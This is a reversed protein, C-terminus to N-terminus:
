IFRQQFSGPRSQGLLFVHGLSEMPLKSHEQQPEKAPVTQLLKLVEEERLAPLNTLHHLSYLVSHSDGGHLHCLLDRKPIPSCCPFSPLIPPHSSLCKIFNSQSLGNKSGEERATQGMVGHTESIWVSCKLQAPICHLM